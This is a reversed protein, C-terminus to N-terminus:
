VQPDVSRLLELLGQAPLPQDDTIPDPSVVPERLKEAIRSRDRSRLGVSLPQSEAPSRLVQEGGLTKRRFRRIYM